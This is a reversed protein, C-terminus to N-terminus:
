RRLLCDPAQCVFELAFEWVKMDQEIVRASGEELALQTDIANFHCKGEVM